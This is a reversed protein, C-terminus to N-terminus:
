LKEFGKDTSFWVENVQAEELALRCIPCPKSNRLECRKNIRAVVVTEIDDRARILAAIEAHLSVKQDKGTRRAYEAQMPHTKRSNTAWSVIQGKKDLCIAAHRFKAESQKAYDIVKDIYDERLEDM